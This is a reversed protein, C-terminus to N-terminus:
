SISKVRSANTHRSLSTRIIHVSICVTINNQNDRLQYFRVYCYYCCCHVASGLLSAYFPQDGNLHNRPTSSVVDRSTVPPRRPRLCVCGRIVHVPLVDFSSKHIPLRRRTTVTAVSSRRGGRGASMAFTFLRTGDAPRCRENRPYRPTTTNNCLRGACSFVM